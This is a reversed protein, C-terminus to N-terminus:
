INNNILKYLMKFCDKVSLIKDIDDHIYTPIDALPRYLIFLNSYYTSQLYLIICLMLIM